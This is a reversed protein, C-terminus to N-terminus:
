PVDTHTPGHEVHRWRGPATLATGEPHRGAVPRAQFAQRDVGDRGSRGPKSRNDASETTLMIIPTFKHSGDTRITILEIGDMNPVNLDTIVMNVSAGTMQSLADKGDVAGIVDYGAQSLTFSVMQRISASDDVTM